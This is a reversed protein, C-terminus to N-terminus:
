KAAGLELLYRNCSQNLQNKIILVRRVVLKNGFNMLLLNVGCYIWKDHARYHQWLTLFTTLYM